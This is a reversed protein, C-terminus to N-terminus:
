LGAVCLGPLRLKGVTNERRLGSSGSSVTWGASLLLSLGRPAILELPLVESKDAKYM